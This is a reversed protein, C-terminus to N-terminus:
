PILDQRKLERAVSEGSPTVSLRGRGDRAILGQGELDVVAREAAPKLLRNKKVLRAFETEGAVVDAFVARRTNDSM